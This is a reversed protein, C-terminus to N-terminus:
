RNRREQDEKGKARKKSIRNAIMLARVIVALFILAIIVIPWRSAWFDDM